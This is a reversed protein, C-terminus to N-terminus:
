TNHVLYYKLVESALMHFFSTLETRCIQYGEWSSSYHSTLGTQRSKRQTQNQLTNRELRGGQEMDRGPVPPLDLAGQAAVGAVGVGSLAAPWGTHTHPPHLYHSSHLTLTLCQTPTCVSLCVHTCVCVCMVCVCVCVCVCVRYLLLKWLNTSVYM